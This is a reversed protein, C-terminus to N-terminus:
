KWYEIRRKIVMKLVHEQYVSKEIWNGIKDYTYNYNEIETRGEKVIRKWEIFNNNLDYKFFDECQKSNSENSQLMQNVINGKEDYSFIKRVHETSDSNEDVMLEETRNNKTDYIHKWREIFDNGIYGIREIQNKNKDYKYIWKGFYSSGSVSIKHEILNNKNDFKNVNRDNQSIEYINNGNKDYQFKYKYFLELSCFELKTLQGNKNFEMITPCSVPDKLLTEGGILEANYEIETLKKVRGELKYRRPDNGLLNETLSQSNAERFLTILLFFVILIKPIM